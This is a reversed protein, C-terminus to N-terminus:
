EFTIELRDSFRSTPVGGDTDRHWAQFFWTQGATVSVFGTPTPWQALDVALSFRGSADVVQPQGPGVFRGISAGLYLFGVQSQMFGQNLSNLFIGLSGPPMNRAFLTVENDAAVGSGFAGMTTYRGTSNTYQISGGFLDLPISDTPSLISVSGPYTGSPTLPASGGVILEAVGDENLDAVSVLSHGYNADPRGDISGLVAGTASSVLSVRGMVGPDPGFYRASLGIDALGDGDLDDIRAVSLDECGLSGAPDVISSVIVGTAGSRISIRSSGALVPCFGDRVVALDPTGDGDMDDLRAISTGFTQGGFAGWLSEGSAGSRAYFGIPPGGGQSTRLSASFDQVGDGDLDGLPLLHRGFDWQNSLPPSVLYLVQDDVGSLVYVLGSRFSGLREPESVALDSIGDGNVDGLDLVDAGFSRQTQGSQILDLQQGTASSYIRVEGVAPALSGSHVAIDQLGDGDRDAVPTAGMSGTWAAPAPFAQLTELTLGSLTQVVPPSSPAAFPGPGRSWILIDAIRDGDLDGIPAADTGRHFAESVDREVLTTQATSLPALSAAAWAAALALPSAAARDNRLPFTKM